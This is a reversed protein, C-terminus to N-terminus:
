KSCERQRDGAGEGGAQRHRHRDDPNAGSATKRVKLSVSILPHAGNREDTLFANRMSTELFPGRLGDNSVACSTEQTPGVEGVAGDRSPLSFGMMESCGAPNSRTRKCHHPSNARRVDLGD